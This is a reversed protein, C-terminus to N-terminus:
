LVVNLPFMRVDEVFNASHTSLLGLDFLGTYKKKLLLEKISDGALLHIKINAQKFGQLLTRAPKNDTKEDVGGEDITRLDIGKKQKADTLKKMEDIVDQEGGTKVSKDEKTEEKQNQKTNIM